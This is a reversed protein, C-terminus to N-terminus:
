DVNMTPAVVKYVQTNPLHSLRLNAKMNQLLQQSFISSFYPM